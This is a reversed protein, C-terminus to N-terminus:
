INGDLEENDEVWCVYGFDCGFVDMVGDNFGGDDEDVCCGDDGVIDVLGYVGFYRGYREM